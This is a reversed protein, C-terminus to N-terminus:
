ADCIAVKRDDGCGLAPTHCEDKAISEGCGGQIEKMNHLADRRDVAQCWASRWWPTSCSLHRTRAVLLDILVTNRVGSDFEQTSM